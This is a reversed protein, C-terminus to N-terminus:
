TFSRAALRGERNRNQDIARQAGAEDNFKETSFLLGRYRINEWGKNLFNEQAYWITKGNEEVPLTRYQTHQSM